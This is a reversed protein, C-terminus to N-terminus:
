PALRELHWTDGQRRYVLRDHLRDRRGQWLEVLHPVVRYGGWHLPRVLTKGDWEQRMEAVQEVLWARSAVVRSQPSAMAGLNSERPRTNFYADSDEASVREVAGEVRVQRGLAPWWFVLAARGTADLARGKRSEYNTFFVFGRADVAKLLVVRAAPMGHEDVTALTMGNALPVRAATAEGFWRRFQELPNADVHAEDLPEGAYDQRLDDSIFELM